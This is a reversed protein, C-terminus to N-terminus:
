DAFLETFMKGYKVTDYVGIGVRSYKTSIMAELHEPSHLFGEHATTADPAFSLNEALANFTLNEAIARDYPDNGKPDLHGFYGVDVMAKSHERAIKTLLPDLQLSSLHKEARMQNLAMFLSEESDPDLVTKHDPMALRVFSDSDQKASTISIIGERISRSFAQELPANFHTTFPLTSGVIKSGAIATKLNTPIPLVIIVTAVFSIILLSSFLNPILGFYRNFKSLILVMPLEKFFDNFFTLFLIESLIFISIFSILNLLESRFGLYGLAFTLLPFLSIACVLSIALGLFEFFQSLFGRKFAFAAYIVIFLIVGFDVWNIGLLM